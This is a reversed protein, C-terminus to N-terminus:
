KSEEVKNKAFRKNLLLNLKDMWQNNGDESHANLNMHPGNGNHHGQHVKVRTKEM